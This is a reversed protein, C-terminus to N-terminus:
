GSAGSTQNVVTQAAAVNLQALIAPARLQRVRALERVAGTLRKQARGLARDLYELGKESAPPRITLELELAHTTIWGNIVRRVLLEEIATPNAGLLEARMATVHETIAAEWIPDTSAARRILQRTAQRGLNGFSDVWRRERLLASIRKKAETGGARAKAFLAIAEADNEPAEFRILPKPGETDHKLKELANKLHTLERSMRWEGRNHKHYGLAYLTGEILTRLHANASATAHLLDDIRERFATHAERARRRREAAQAQLQELQHALLVGTGFRDDAGLYEKVPKGNVRRNRYLYRRGGHRVEWGM